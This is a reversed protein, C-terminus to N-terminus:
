KLKLVWGIGSKYYRGLWQQILGQSLGLRKGVMKVKEGQALWALAKLKQKVLPRNEKQLYLEIEKLDMDRIVGDQTGGIAITSLERRPIRKELLRLMPTTSVDLSVGIKLFAPISETGKKEYRKWLAISCGCREAAQEQTLGKKLRYAKILEGIKRKLVKRTLVVKYGM